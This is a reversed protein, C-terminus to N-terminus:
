RNKIPMTIYFITGVGKKTKFTITGKMTEIAQKVFALGLGTGSSKTTFNPQFIKDRVLEDIGKGFDQFTITLYGPRQIEVMIRIRCQPKGAAAEISNKILNNFSRLLQDQDGHVLVERDERVVLEINIRPNDSYLDISKEIMDIIKVDDLRTDPMKAFNSFESAIRNLSEIQEIFSKTFRNFKEDFRPDQEKWSRELLQVGLRLPTLPNKIEHAVQKAMERWASERESRMIQDASNDLAVLMNNYEKILSGIEDNRKWFIPENKRGINTKALSKQVMTLPATIKNAVFVAFLGLIVLVLAYVNIITNLLLGVQQDLDKQNSYYPMGLYAIIESKENRIPTYAILFVLEGINEHHVFEERKYDHMNLWANANIYRSILGLDFIKRQTSYLIEGNLDYLNLEIANMEAAASFQQEGDLSEIGQNGAAFQAEMGRAVQSIKRIMTSEQRDKYQGSLSFFSIFGVIVLTGVVALVVFAQIRTSYLVRNQLIMVSWRFNRLSFDYDSLVSVVWQVAYLLISFVLFVLFLFSLSALQQWGSQARSSLILLDNGNPSNFIHNYGESTYQMYKGAEPPSFTTSIPYKYAGHQTRLVDQNYYAYSYNEYENPNDVSGAFLLELSSTYRGLSKNKLEILYTGIVEDDHRVPLLAFYNVHGINHSLRYFNKSIKRSGSIVRDKYYTFKSIADANNLASDVSIAYGNFEYKTLYGGLYVNRLEKALQQQDKRNYLFYNILTEDNVIEEEIEMFLLVADPDESSELKQLAILQKSQNKINQFVSQKLSAIGAFLFLIVVFLALNFRNNIHATWSKLFVIAIFLFTSITLEDLRLKLSLCLLVTIASFLFLEKQTMKLRKIVSIISELLLYLCFLVLCLLIIGSWSYINLNLLNNVEFSISSDVVLSEFIYVAVECCFYLVAGSLLFALIQTLRSTKERDKFLGLDFRCYYIYCIIWTAAIVHLALSGLSPLIESSAYVRPDFFGSYFNEALWQTKLDFYRVGFLYIALLVISLKVFSKKAIWTCISTMLVTATFVFLLWMILELRSYFTNFTSSKLKLSLLYQGDSNRLNYVFRDSYSAVDLNPSTILDASFENVLYRNSLAYNAKIPILCLVSFGGSSKKRAEYWGNNWSIVSSGERIGADSRPVIQESGWFVLDNNAYTYLYINQKGGLDNIVFDKLRYDDEISRLQDLFTPDDFLSEVVSEKRHLNEEVENGDILLIEKEQYTLNITIATGAFCLTLLLLLIRIKLINNM